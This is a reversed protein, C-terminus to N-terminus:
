VTRWSAALAAVRDRAWADAAKIATLDPHMVAAPVHDVLSQEVLAQLATMVESPGNDPIAAVARAAELSFGGSGVAGAVKAEAIRLLVGDTAIALLVAAVVQTRAQM